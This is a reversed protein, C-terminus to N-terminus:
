IMASVCWIICHFSLPSSITFPDTIGPDWMVSRRFFEWLCYLCRLGIPCFSNRSPSLSSLIGSPRMSDPGGPMFCSVHTMYNHSVNGKGKTTCWLDTHRKYMLGIVVYNSQFAFAILTEPVPFNSFFHNGHELFEDHALCRKGTDVHYRSVVHNIRIEQLHSSPIGQYLSGQQAYFIEVYKNQGVLQWVPAYKQYGFEISVSDGIRYAEVFELFDYSMELFHGCTSILKDESSKLKELFGMFETNM